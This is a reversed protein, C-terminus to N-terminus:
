KHLPPCSSVFPRKWKSLGLRRKLSPLYRRYFMLWQFRVAGLKRPRLGTFTEEFYGDRMPYTSRTNQKAALIIRATEAVTHANLEHNISLFTAAHHGIWQIYSATVSPPMEPLSDVNLALDFQRQPRRNSCLLKIRGHAIKADDGDMWIKDPGLVAGLFCAQAVIGLPLDITTYDTLGARYSYYATRGMGPGIEIVSKNGTGVLALVRRTQYLAQLARYSVEGRSTLLGWEGRFPAPFDVKQRLTNDLTALIADCDDDAGLVAAMRSFSVRMDKSLSKRMEENGLHEGRITRCLDDVGYYLDTSLPDSFINRLDNDTEALMAAHIDARRADIPAWVPGAPTCESVALRYTRKVRGLYDSDLSSLM